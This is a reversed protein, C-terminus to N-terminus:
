NRAVAEAGRLLAKRDIELWRDTKVIRKLVGDLVEPPLANTLRILAGLMVINGARPEGLEDAIATFPRVVMDLDPRQCDDPLSTGNYLVLGGPVVTPLFKRLSPENLALLVGPRSILPSDVPKSSLRVHCNSTGSRMEPGYSPIWSVELGADMGAEAIVQGLMLVGQGGFGAIKIKLDVQARPAVGTTGNRGTIKILRPIDTLPPPEPAAPHVPATEIRDRYVGPVFAKSLTDRVEHQADLPQM